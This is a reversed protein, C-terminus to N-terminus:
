ALFEEVLRNFRGSEEIFLLHGAGDFTEFRADPLRRAVEVGNEYPVIRDANGHVVLTPATIEEM